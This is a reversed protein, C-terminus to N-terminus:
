YSYQYTYLPWMGPKVDVSHPICLGCAKSTEYLDVHVPLYANLIVLQPM